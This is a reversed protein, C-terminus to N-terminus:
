RGAEAPDYRLAVIGNIWTQEFEADPVGFAARFEDLARESEIRMGLERARVKDLYDALADRHERHLYYVLAWAQAYHNPINRDRGSFLDSRTILDVLSALRGGQVAQELAHKPLRKARPELGLADRIDGLRMHNIRLRGTPSSAQSVEFQCALGEVLWMPNDAGRAHVGLNFFMQHAAEHQIVFRNFRKVIAERHSKYASLRHSLQQRRRQTSQGTSGQRGLRDLQAQIQEIQRAVGRLDPHNMTNCFVALNTRQDYIGAMMASHIGISELYRTYDEHQDFLIVELRVGTEPENIGCTKCFRALAKYTGELRGVLPRIAEYSTDYAIVFHNSERIKFGDGAVSLLRAAVDDDPPAQPSSQALLVPMALLPLSVAVAACSRIRVSQRQQEQMANGSMSEARKRDFLRISLV